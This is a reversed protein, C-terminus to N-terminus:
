CTLHFAGAVRRGQAHLSNFISVAEKTPVAVLNIGQAEIAQAAEETVKMGGYAGTGVVLTEVSAYLIDDIDQAYLAHGERRWWNGIIKDDIIKLDNRHSQGTSTMSGFSYSEIMQTGRYPSSQLM